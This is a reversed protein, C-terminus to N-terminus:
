RAHEEESIEDLSRCRQYSVHLDEFPIRPAPQYWDEIAFEALKRIENRRRHYRYAGM